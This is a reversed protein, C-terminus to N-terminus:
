ANGKMQPDTPQDTSTFKLKLSHYPILFDQTTLLILKKPDNSADRQIHFDNKWGM